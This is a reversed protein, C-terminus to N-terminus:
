WYIIRCNLDFIHVSQGMSQLINLYQKDTFKVAAPGVSSSSSSSSSSSCNADAAASCFERSRSERQLPSSHRFSASGKKWSALLGGDFGGGTGGHRRPGSRQPSISHSRQQHHQHPRDSKCDNKSIILRAMEEKLHAHGAELEQIKKLLEETPPSAAPAASASTTRPTPNEM